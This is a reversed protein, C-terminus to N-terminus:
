EKKRIETDLESKSLKAAKDDSQAFGFRTEKLQGSKPKPRTKRSFAALCLRLM